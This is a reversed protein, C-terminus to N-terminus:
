RAWWLGSHSIPCTVNAAFTSCAPPMPSPPWPPQPAPTCAFNWVNWACTLNTVPATCAAPTNYSCCPPPPPPPPPPMSCHSSNWICPKLCHGKDKIAPCPPPPPPAPGVQYYSLGGGGTTNGTIQEGPACARLCCGGEDFNMANCGKQGDCIGECTEPGTVGKWPGHCGVNPCDKDGYTVDIPGYWGDKPNPVAAAGAGGASTAATSLMLLLLAPEM